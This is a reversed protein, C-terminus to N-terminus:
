RRRSVSRRHGRKSTSRRKHRRARRTHKRGGKRRRRTAVSDDPDAYGEVGETVPENAYAAAKYSVVPTADAKKTNGKDGEGMSFVPSDKLEKMDSAFDQQSYDDFKGPCERAALYRLALKFALPSKLIMKLGTLGVVSVIISTYGAVVMNFQEERVSCDASDWLYSGITGVAQDMFGECPKVGSASALFPAIYNFAVGALMATMASLKAM